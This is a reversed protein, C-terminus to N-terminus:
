NLSLYIVKKLLHHIILYLKNMSKDKSNIENSNGVLNDVRESGALDVFNLEAEMM